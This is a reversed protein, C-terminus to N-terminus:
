EEEEDWGAERSMADTTSGGGYHLGAAGGVGTVTGESLCFMGTARLYVVITTPTSYNKKMNSINM